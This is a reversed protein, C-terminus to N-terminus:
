HRLVNTKYTRKEVQWSLLLAIQLSMMFEIVCVFHTLLLLSQKQKHSRLYEWGDSM